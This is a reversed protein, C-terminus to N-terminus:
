KRTRKNEEILFDIIDCILPELTTFDARLQYAATSYYTGSHKNLNGTDSIDKLPKSFDKKKIRDYGMNNVHSGLFSDFSIGEKKGMLTSLSEFFSWAGAYLLQPHKGLSVICLSKYLGILKKSKLIELKNVILNSPDIGYNQKEKQQPSSDMESEVDEGSADAGKGERTGKTEDSSDATDSMSADHHGGDSDQELEAPNDATNEIPPKTRMNDPSLEFGDIYANVANKDAYKGNRSLSLDKDQMSKLFKLCKDIADILLKKDATLKIRQNKDSFISRSVVGKDLASKMIRRFVEHSYDNSDIYETLIPYKKEAELLLAMAYWDKGDETRQDYRFRAAGYATWNIRSKGQGAAHREYVTKFILNKDSSVQAQIDSFDISYISNLHESYNRMAESPAFTDPDSLVKLAALRRNGDLVINKEDKQYVLLLEGLDDEAISMM